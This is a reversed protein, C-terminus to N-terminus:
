RCKDSGDEIDTLNVHQNCLEAIKRYKHCSIYDEATEDSPNQHTDFEIGFSPSIGQFGMGEENGGVTYMSEDQLVFVLGEAGEDKKGTNITVEVSFPLSVNLKKSSWFYGNIHPEDKTLNFCGAGLRTCTGECSIGSASYCGFEGLTHM